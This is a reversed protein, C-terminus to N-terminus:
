CGHDAGAERERRLPSTSTRVAAVVMWYDDAKLGAKSINRFVFRLIISITVLVISFVAVGIILSVNADVGDDPAAQRRDLQERIAIARLISPVVM